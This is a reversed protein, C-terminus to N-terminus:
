AHAHERADQPGVRQDAPYLAIGAHHRPHAAAQPADGRARGAAHRRHAGLHPDRRRALGLAALEARIGALPEELNHQIDNSLAKLPSVYVVQTEDALGGAADRGPAGSCRHAALFAALTKGSGTPAAILVHQGSQIAPWAQSRRSRRRPSPRRSVLGSLPISITSCAQQDPVFRHCQWRCHRTNGADFPCRTRLGVTDEAGDIRVAVDPGKSSRRRSRPRHAWTCTCASWSTASRGSSCSLPARSSNSWLPRGSGCAPM